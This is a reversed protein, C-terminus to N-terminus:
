AACPRRAQALVRAPSLRDHSPRPLRAHLPHSLRREPRQLPRVPLSRLLRSRLHSMTLVTTLDMLAVMMLKAKLDMTAVTIALKATITMEMMLAAMTTLGTMVTTMLVKPSRQNLSRPPRRPSASLRAVLRRPIKRLPPKVKRTRQLLQLTILSSHGTLM